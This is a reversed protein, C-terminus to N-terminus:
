RGTGPGAAKSIEIDFLGSGLRCRSRRHGGRVVIQWGMIANKLTAERTYEGRDATNRGLGYAQSLPLGALM